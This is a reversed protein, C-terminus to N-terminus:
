ASQSEWFGKGVFGLRSFHQVFLEVQEGSEPMLVLINAHTPQQGSVRGGSLVTAKEIRKELAAVRKMDVVERAAEHAHQARLQAILEDAQADFRIRDRPVCHPFALPHPAKTQQVTQLLELSFGVFIASTTRGAVYEECLKAWWQAQRSLTGRNAGDLVGGPPNLFIRGQWECLLGDEARTLVYRAGVLQNAFLTTAPDLDFWGLVARSPEIISAPTLHEVSESSHKARRKKTAQASALPQGNAGAVATQQQLPSVAANVDIETM